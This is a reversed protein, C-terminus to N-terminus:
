SHLSLPPGTKLPLLTQDFGPLPTAAVAQSAQRTVTVQLDLTVRTTSFSSRSSGCEGPCNCGHTSTRDHSDGQDHSAAHHPVHHDRAPHPGHGYGSTHMACVVGAPDGALLPALLTLLLLAASFRRM